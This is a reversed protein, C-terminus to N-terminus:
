SMSTFGTSLQVTENIEVIINTEPQWEEVAHKRVPLWCWTLLFVRGGCGSGCVQFRPVAFRRLVIPFIQPPPTPRHARNRVM